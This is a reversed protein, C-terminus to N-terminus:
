CALPTITHSVVFCAYLYLGVEMQEDDKYKSWIEDESFGCLYVDGIVDMLLRTVDNERLVKWLDDKESENLIFAFAEVFSFKEKHGSNSDPCSISSFHLKRLLSPISHPERAALVSLTDPTWEISASTSEQLVEGAADHHLKPSSPSATQPRM